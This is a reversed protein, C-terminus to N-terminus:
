RSQDASLLVNAYPKPGEGPKPLICKLIWRAKSSTLIPAVFESFYSLCVPPFLLSALFTSVGVLYLVAKLFKPTAIIEDYTFNNGYTKEPGRARSREFLSWTHHVILRNIPCMPFAVGYWTEGDVPVRYMLKAPKTPAGKATVPNTLSNQSQPPVISRRVNM